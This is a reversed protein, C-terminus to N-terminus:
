SQSLFPLFAGPSGTPESQTVTALAPAAAPVTLAVSVWTDTASDSSSTFASTRAGTTLQRTGLLLSFGGMGPAPRYFGRQTLGSPLSLTANSATATDARRQAFMCVLLDDTTAPVVPVADIQGSTGFKAIPVCREPDIGGVGRLTMAGMVSRAASGFPFPDSIPDAAAYSKALVYVRIPFMSGAAEYGGNFPMDLLTVWGRVPAVTGWVEAAIFVLMLDDPVVAAARTVIHGWGNVVGGSTDVHAVDAVGASPTPVVGLATLARHLDWAGHGQETAGAGTDRTNARLAAGVQNATFQGGTLARAFLSCMAPSSASTGSWTEGIGDHNIALVDIGPGCGSADVSHNSFPARRDTAQDFATSSHVNAYTRSLSAIMALDTNFNGAAVIIHVGATRAYTAADQIVTSTWGGQDSIVMVKAGNDVAWTIGAAIWTDTDFTGLARPWVAADLLLGGAPIATSACLDAHGDDAGAALDAGSYTGTMDAQAVLTFGMAARLAPTTAGDLLAVRVDRGHWVRLDVYRARLYALTGVAPVRPYGSLRGVSRPKPWRGLQQEEVYRCNAATAFRAAEDETLHVNYAVDSGIPFLPDDDATHAGLISRFRRDDAPTLVAHAIDRHARPIKIAGVNYPRREGSTSM